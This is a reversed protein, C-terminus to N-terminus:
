QAIQHRFKTKSKCNAKDATSLMARLMPLLPLRSSKSSKLQACAPTDTACTDSQQTHETKFNLLWNLVTQKVLCCTKFTSHEESFLKLRVLNQNILSLQVAQLLNANTTVCQTQQAHAINVSLVTHEADATCPLIALQQQM